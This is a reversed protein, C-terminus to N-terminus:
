MITRYSVTGPVELFALFDNRGIVGLILSRLPLILDNVALSSGVSLTLLYLVVVCKAFLGGLYARMRFTQLVHEHSDKSVRRGLKIKQKKQGGTNQSERFYVFWHRVFFPCPESVSQPSSLVRTCLRLM